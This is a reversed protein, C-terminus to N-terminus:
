LANYFPNFLVRVELGEAYANLEKREAGVFFVVIQICKLIQSFKQGVIATKHTVIGAIREFQRLLNIKGCEMRKNSCCKM